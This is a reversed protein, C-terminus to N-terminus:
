KRVGKTANPSILTWTYDTSSVAAQACASQIADFIGSATNDPKSDCRGQATDHAYYLDFVWGTFLAGDDAVLGEGWGVVIAEPKLVHEITNVAMAGTMPSECQALINLAEDVGRTKKYHAFLALYAKALDRVSIDDNQAALSEAYVRMKDLDDFTM